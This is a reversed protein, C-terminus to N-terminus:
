VMVMVTLDSLGERVRGIVMEGVSGMVVRLASMDFAEGEAGGGSDCLNNSFPFANVSEFSRFSYSIASPATTCRISLGAAAAVPPSFSLDVATASGTGEVLLDVVAVAGGGDGLGLMGAGGENVMVVETSSSELGPVDMGRVFMSM